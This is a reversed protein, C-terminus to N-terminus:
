FPLLSRLARMGNPKLATKMMKRIQEFQKLVQNVNQVTTGAGSAIRRRRSGDLKDPHIREQKTMSLIIAETKKIESEVKEFDVQSKMSSAGPIMSLLEDASGMKRLSRIQDLFDELSIQNTSAKSVIQRAQENSVASQAKELLTQIDGMGIIRSAMRDPHFPELRDVKEGTGVFKIPKGLVSRISLVAGGRADGDLKSFIVGDVGITRDFATAVNVSEQGTMSDLVLLAEKPKYLERLEKLENMLGDDISLRGATDLIVVEHMGEIWRRRVGPYMEKPHRVGEEPVVVSVGIQEGLIRLQDVAALRALDSAVLLVRRGSQRFFHALKAATTTKGSGQLGMLMIITPPKPSLQLNARSDGLLHVIENYVEKLVTQGPTLGASVEAGVLRGRINDVFSKVVDLNVDAELLAVRIERLTEDIQAEGLLGRGTIRRFVRDFRETLSEFM